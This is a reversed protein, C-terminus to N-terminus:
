LGAHVDDYKVQSIITIHFLGSNERYKMKNIKYSHLTKM